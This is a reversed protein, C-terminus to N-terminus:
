IRLSTHKIQHKGLLIHVPYGLVGIDLRLLFCVLLHSWSFGDRQDSDTLGHTKLAEQKIVVLVASINAPSCCFYTEGITVV